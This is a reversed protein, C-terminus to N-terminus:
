FVLSIFRLGSLKKDKSDKDSRYKLKMIHVFRALLKLLVIKKKLSLFEWKGTLYIHANNIFM